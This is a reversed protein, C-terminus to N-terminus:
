DNHKGRRIARTLLELRYTMKAHRAINKLDENLIAKLSPYEELGIWHGDAQTSATYHISELAYTLISLKLQSAELKDAIERDIVSAVHQYWLLLATLTNFRRAILFHMLFGAAFSCVPTVINTIADM